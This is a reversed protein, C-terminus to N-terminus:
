APQMDPTKLAVNDGEGNSSPGNSTPSIELQVYSEIAM